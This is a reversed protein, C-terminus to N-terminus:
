IILWNASDSSFKLSSGVLLIGFLLVLRSGIYRGSDGRGRDRM